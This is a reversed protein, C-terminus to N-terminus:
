GSGPEPANGQHPKGPSGHASLNLSQPQSVSESTINDLRVRKKAIFAAAMPLRKTNLAASKQLTLSASLRGTKGTSAKVPKSETTLLTSLM